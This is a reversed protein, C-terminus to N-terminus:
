GVNRCSRDISEREPSADHSFSEGTIHIWGEGRGEAAMKLIQEGGDDVLAAQIARDLSARFRPNDVFDALSASEATELPLTGIHTASQLSRPPTELFSLALHSPPLPHYHLPYPADHPGDPSSASSAPFFGVPSSSFSRRFAHRRPSPLPSPSVAIPPRAPLAGAALPALGAARSPAAAAALRSLASRPLKAISMILTTPQHSPESSDIIPLRFLCAYM